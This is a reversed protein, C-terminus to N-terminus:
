GARAAATGARAVLTQLLALAEGLMGAESATPTWDAPLVSSWERVQRLLAFAPSPAVQVVPGHRRPDPAVWESADDDRFPRDPARADKRASFVAAAAEPTLERRVTEKVLARAQDATLGQAHEILTPWWPEPAQLIEQAVAQGIRGDKVAADLEPNESIGLRRWVYAVSRNLMAAIERLRLKRQDRLYRIFEAEEGPTLTRHHAHDLFSAVVAEDSSMGRVYCDIAAFGARAAAHYRRSGIVIQYTRGDARREEAILPRVLIPQLLGHQRISDALETLEQEDIHKRPNALNIRIERLPIRVVQLAYAAERGVRPALSM